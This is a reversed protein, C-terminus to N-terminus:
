LKVVKTEREVVRYSWAWDILKKNLMPDGVDALLDIGSWSYYARALGANMALVFGFSAGDNEISRRLGDAMIQVIQILDESITRIKKFKRPKAQSKAWELITTPLVIEKEVSSFPNIGTMTQFCSALIVNFGTFAGVNHQDEAIKTVDKVILDLFRLFDDSPEKLNVISM